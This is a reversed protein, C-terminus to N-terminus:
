SVALVERCVKFFIHVCGGVCKYCIQTPTHRILNFKNCIMTQLLCLLAKIYLVKIFSTLISADAYIDNNVKIHSNIQM